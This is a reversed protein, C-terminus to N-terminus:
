RPPPGRARPLDAHDPGALALRGPSWGAMMPRWPDAGAVALARANDLRRAFVAVWLATRDDYEADVDDVRRALETVSEPTGWEAALHM